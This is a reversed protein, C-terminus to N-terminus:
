APTRKFLEVSMEHFDVRATTQDWLPGLLFGIYFGSDINNPSVAMDFSIMLPYNGSWIFSGSYRALQLENLPVGFDSIYDGMYGRSTENRFDNSEDYGHDSSAGNTATSSTSPVNVVGLWRLRDGLELEAGLLGGLDEATIAMNASVEIYHAASHTTSSDFASVTCSL